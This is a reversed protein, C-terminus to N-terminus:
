LPNSHGGGPSIELGPILGVDGADGASPTLKKVVLAVQSVWISLYLSVFNTPFEATILYEM